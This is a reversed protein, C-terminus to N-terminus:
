KYLPINHQSLQIHTRQTHFLYFFIMIIIHRLLSLINHCNTQSIRQNGKKIEMQVELKTCNVRTHDNDAIINNIREKEAGRVLEVIKDPRCITNPWVVEDTELKAFMFEERLVYDGSGTFGRLLEYWFFNQFHFFSLVACDVPIEKWENFQKITHNLSEASNNTM